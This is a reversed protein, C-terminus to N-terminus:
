DWIKTISGNFPNYEVQKAIEYTGKYINLPKHEDSFNGNPKEHFLIADDKINISSIVENNFTNQKLIVKTSSYLTHQNTGEGKLLTLKNKFNKLKELLKKM